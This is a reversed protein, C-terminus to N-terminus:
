HALAFRAYSWVATALMAFKAALGVMPSALKEEKPIV